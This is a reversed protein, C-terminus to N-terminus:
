FPIDDDDPENIEKQGCLDEPSAEVAAGDLKRHGDEPEGYDGDELFRLLARAEVDQAALEQACHRIRPNPHELFRNFNKRKKRGIIGEWTILRELNRLDQRFQLESAGLRSCDKCLHRAHGCGSFKENPRM